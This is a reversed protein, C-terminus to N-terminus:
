RLDVASGNGIIITGPLLLFIGIQPLTLVAFGATTSDERSDLSSPATEKGSGDGEEFDKDVSSSKLAGGRSLEIGVTSENGYSMSSTVGCIFARQIRHNQLPKLSVTM